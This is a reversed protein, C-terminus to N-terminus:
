SNEVKTEGIKSYSHQTNLALKQWAKVLTRFIWLCLILTRCSINKVQGAMKVAQIDCM